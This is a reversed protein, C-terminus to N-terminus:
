GAVVEAIDDFVFENWGAAALMTVGQEALAHAGRTHLHRPARNSAQSMPNKVTAGVHMETKAGKILRKWLERTGPDDTTGSLSSERVGDGNRPGISFFLCGPNRTVFEHASSATLDVDGHCLAVRDVQRSGNESVREAADSVTMQYDPFFQELVVTLDHELAWRTALEISEDPDAHFQISTRPM